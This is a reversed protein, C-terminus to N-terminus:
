RGERWKNGDRGAPGPLGDRGDRGRLIEVYRGSICCDNTTTNRTSVTSDLAREVIDHDSGIKYYIYRSHLSFCM